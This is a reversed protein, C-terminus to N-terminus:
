ASTLAQTKFISLAPKPTHDFRTLGYFNESDAPNAGFDEYHYVFAAKVFSAWTTHLYNFLATISAAQQAENVCRDSGQTCTPWGIETIWFPKDTAGHSLFANHLVETRRMQDYAQGTLGTIDRGYPHIAVADFYKGLDPVAQYLADIWSVYRAGIQRGTIEAALLYKASRDVARGATAAAKVLAAYRPPDYHGANSSDFYPENWLEFTGIAYAHLEPHETWFSGHPGYRGVVAAVFRAYDSPDAPITNWSAGAWSPTSDLLPLIHVGKQAALLMFHDYYSFDFTGHAPEVKSWQFDERLWKAGTQSVVQDLRDATGDGGWGATNADLGVVLGGTTV